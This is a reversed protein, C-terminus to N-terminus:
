RLGGPRGGLDVPNTAVKSAINYINYDAEANAQSVCASFCFPWPLQGLPDTLLIPDNSVYAYLDIGGITGIPDESIFRQLTPSYYRARYFYLGTGDSERGTYEYRNASTGSTVTTNGFPEYAYSAVASGSSNTLVFRVAWPM